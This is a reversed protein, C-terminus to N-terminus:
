AESVRDNHMAIHDIGEDPRCIDGEVHREFGLM